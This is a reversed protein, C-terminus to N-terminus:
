WELHDCKSSSQAILVIFHKYKTFFQFEEFLKSWYSYVGGGGKMVKEREASSRALEFKKIEQVTKFGTELADKM